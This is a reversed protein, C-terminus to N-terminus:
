YGELIEKKTLTALEKFELTVDIHTPAGGAFTTNQGNPTYNVSMNTLISTAHMPMNKNEGDANYHVIDFESPYIYLFNGTDTKYEPHMHFKFMKIISMVDDFEKKSRPAFKYDFSFTRFDVGKFAMEKKNNAALGSRVSLIDKNAGSNLGVNATAGVTTGGASKAAAAFDKGPVLAAIMGAAADVGSTALMQSATEAGTWDTSYRSSFQNPAYLAIVSKLKRTTRQTQPTLFGVAAVGAAGKVDGSITAATIQSARSTDQEQRFGGSTRKSEAATKDNMPDDGKGAGLKVKGEAQESIYFCIYQLGYENNVAKLLDDPFMTYVIGNKENDTIKNGFKLEADTIVSASSKADGKPFNIVKDLASSAQTKLSDLSPINM